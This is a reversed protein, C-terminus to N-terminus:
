QTRSIKDYHSILDSAYLKKNYYLICKITVAWIFVYIFVIITGIEYFATNFTENKGDKNIVLSLIIAFFPFGVLLYIWKVLRSFKFFINDIVEFALLLSSSFAYYFLKRTNSANKILCDYIDVDSDNSLEKFSTIIIDLSGALLFLMLFLFLRSYLFGDQKITEPVQQQETTEKAKDDLNM